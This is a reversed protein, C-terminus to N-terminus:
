QQLTETLGAHRELRELRQEVSLHRADTDTFMDHIDAIDRRIATLQREILSFKKDHDSLKAKIAAVDGRMARLHDLILDHPEQPTKKKTM